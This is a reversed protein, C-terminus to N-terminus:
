KPNIKVKLDLYIGYGWDECISKLLKQENALTVQLWVGYAVFSPQCNSNLSATSSHNGLISFSVALAVTGM